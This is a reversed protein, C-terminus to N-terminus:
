NDQAGQAVWDFIVQYDTTDEDFSAPLNLWMTPDTSQTTSPMRRDGYTANYRQGKSGYWLLGQPSTGANEDPRARQLLDSVAPAGPEVLFQAKNIAQICSALPQGGSPNAEECALTQEQLAFNADVLDSASGCVLYFGANDPGTPVHCSMCQDKLIPAVDRAFSRTAHTEPAGVGSPITAASNDPNIAAAGAYRQDEIGAVVLIATTPVSPLTVTVTGTVTSVFAGQSLVGRTTATMLGNQRGDDAPTLNSASGAITAPLMLSPAKRAATSTFGTIPTMGGSGDLTYLWLDTVVPTTGDRATIELTAIPPPAASGSGADSGDSGSGSGIASSGSGASVTLALELTLVKETYTGPAVSSGGGDGSSSGGGDPYTEQDNGCGFVAIMAATAFTLSRM